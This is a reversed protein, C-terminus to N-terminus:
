HRNREIFEKMVNIIDTREANAIYFMNGKEGFQFCMLAFGWGRPLKGKLYAGFERNLAEMKENRVGFVGAEPVETSILVLKHLVGLTTVETRDTVSVTSELHNPDTIYHTLINVLHRADAPTIDM